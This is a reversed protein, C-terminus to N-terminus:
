HTLLYPATKAIGEMTGKHQGSRADFVNLGGEIDLGLLLPQEDQTARLSWLPKPSEITAVKKHSKLDFVWVNTSPDKHSGQYGDAHMLAYLRDAAPSIALMEWGGPRWNKKAETESVLSWPELVKPQEAFLDVAHVRGLYSVFYYVGDKFAARELLLEKNPDFFPLRQRGSEKGNEDLSVLLLNGDGCISAFRRQGAPYNLACGPIDIEGVVAKKQTDVVTVSTAPTFNYILALRDDDILTLQYREAINSARKPPIEVEWLPALTTTDHATLVDTRQGRAGRSYFTDATYLIKRDKSLTAPAGLGVTVMGLYQMKDPDVVTVRGVVLSDFEMDVIYSRHPDPESLKEQGLPEEPLTAGAMWSAAALSAATCLLGLKRM